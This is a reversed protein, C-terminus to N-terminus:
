RENSHKLNVQAKTRTSASRRGVTEERSYGFRYAATRDGPIIKSPNPTHKM